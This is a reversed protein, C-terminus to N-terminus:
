CERFVCDDTRSSCSHWFHIAFMQKLELCPKGAHLRLFLDGSLEVVEVFLGLVEGAEVLLFEGGELGEFFREEVLGEAPLQRM